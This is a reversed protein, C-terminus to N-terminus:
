EFYYRVFIMVGSACAMIKKQPTIGHINTHGHTCSWYTTTYYVCKGRDLDQVCARQTIGDVDYAPSGSVSWEIVCVCVLMACPLMHTAAVCM